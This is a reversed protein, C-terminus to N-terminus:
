ICVVHDSYLEEWKLGCAVRSVAWAVRANQLRRVAVKDHASCDIELMLAQVIEGAVGVLPNARPVEHHPEPLIEAGEVLMRQQNLFRRKPVTRDFAEFVTTEEFGASCAIDGASGGISMRAAVEVHRDAAQFGVAPQACM